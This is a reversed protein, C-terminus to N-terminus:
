LNNRGSFDNAKPCTQFHSVFANPAREARMEGDLGKQLFYVHSNADLPMWKGKNTQAWRIEKGCGECKKEPM